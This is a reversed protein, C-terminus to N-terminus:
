SFLIIIGEKKKEILSYKNIKLMVEKSVRLSKILVWKVLIELIVTRLIKKYPMNSYLFESSLEGSNVELIM